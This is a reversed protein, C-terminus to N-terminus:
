VLMDGTKRAQHFSLPLRHLHAYLRTRIAYVIQQAARSLLFDEYYYAIARVIGILGLALGVAALMAYPSSGFPTFLTAILGRAPKGFLIQDFVVKLPWPEAVRTVAYVFGFFAGGALAGRRKRVDKRFNRGILSLNDWRGAVLRMRPPPRLHTENVAAAVVEAQDPAIEARGHARPAAGRGTRREDTERGRSAATPSARPSIPITRAM